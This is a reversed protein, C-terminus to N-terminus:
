SPSGTMWGISNLWTQMAEAEWRGPLSQLFVRVDISTKSTEKSALVAGIRDWHADLRQLIDEISSSGQALELRELFWRRLDEFPRATDYPHVGRFRRLAEYKGDFYQHPRFAPVGFALAVIALHLSIGVVGAAGEILAAVLLPDPGRPLRVVDPLDQLVIADDDGLVPGAALAV